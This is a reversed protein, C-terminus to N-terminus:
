EKDLLQKELWMLGDVIGKKDDMTVASAAVFKIHKEQESYGFFAAVSDTHRSGPVDSKCCVVLV